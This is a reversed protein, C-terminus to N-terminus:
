LGGSFGRGFSEPPQFPTGTVV